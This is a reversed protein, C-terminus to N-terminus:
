QQLFWGWLHGDSAEASDVQAYVRGERLMEVQDPTLEVSGSITGSAGDGEGTLTLEAFAEGSVATVPGAHLRAGAARVPMSEGGRGARYTLDEFSGAVELTTGTLTATAEGFGGTSGAGIEPFPTLRAEFSEVEPACATSLSVLTLVGVRVALRGPGTAFLSRLAAM